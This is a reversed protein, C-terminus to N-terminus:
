GCLSIRANGFLVCTWAGAQLASISMIQRADRRRVHLGIIEGDGDTYAATHM